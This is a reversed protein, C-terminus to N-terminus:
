QGSGMEAVWIMVGDCPEPVSSASGDAHEQMVRFRLLVMPEGPNTSETGSLGAQNESSGPHNAVWASHEDPISMGTSGSPGAVRIVWKDLHNRRIAVTASTEGDPLLFLNEDKPFGNEPIEHSAVYIHFSRGKPVHLRWRWTLNDYTRVAVVHLKNPDTVVLKGLEAQLKEITGYSENLKENLRRNELATFLNSGILCGIFLVLFFSRLSFRLRPMAAARPNTTM